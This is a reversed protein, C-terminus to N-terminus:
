NECIRLILQCMQIQNWQLAWMLNRSSFEEVDLFVTGKDIYVSSFLLLKAM